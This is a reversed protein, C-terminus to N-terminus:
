RANTNTITVSDMHVMDQKTCLKMAPSGLYISKKNHLYTYTYTHTYTHTHTHIYM